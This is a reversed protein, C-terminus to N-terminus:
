DAYPAVSDVEAQLNRFDASLISPAIIVTSNNMSNWITLAGKM